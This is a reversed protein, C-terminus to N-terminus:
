RATVFEAHINRTIDIIGQGPIETKGYSDCISLQYVYRGYLHITDEPLLDVSAISMLGEEGMIIDAYKILIPTGNKNAYNVIAFAVTCDSANFSKGASTLLNFLFTQSEGGVFSMDPLTYIPNIM